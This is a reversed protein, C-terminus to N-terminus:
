PDVRLEIVEGGRRVRALRSGLLGCDPVDGLAISTVDGDPPPGSARVVNLPIGRVFSRRLHGLAPRVVTTREVFAFSPRNWGADRAAVLFAGLRASTTSRDCALAFEGRLSDVKLLDYLESTVRLKEELAAEDVWGGDLLAFKPGLEVIDMPVIPEEGPLAGTNADSFVRLEGDRPVPFPQRNEARLPEGLAFLGFAAVGALVSAAVQRQPLPPEVNRGAIRRRKRVPSCLVALTATVIAIVLFTIAAAQVPGGFLEQTEALGDHTMRVKIQPHVGATRALSTTLAIFYRWAGWTLIGFPLLIGACGAFTVWFNGAPHAFWAEAAAPDGAELGTARALGARGLRSHVLLPFAVASLLLLPFVLPLAVVPTTMQGSLAWSLQPAVDALAGTDALRALEKGRLWSMEMAPWLVVTLLAALGAAELGWSWLLPSPALPQRLRRATAYRWYRVGALVLVAIAVLAALLASALLSHAHPIESLATTLPNNSEV